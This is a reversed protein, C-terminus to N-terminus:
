LNVGFADAVGVLGTTYGQGIARFKWSGKYRYIEGFIMATVSSEAQHLDYRVIDNDERDAVRIYANRVSAFNGPKRIDPDVYVVFVIKDVEAPVLALDVEIQDTDGKTVYQVSGDPTSLQNFFVLSSTSLAKGAHDCLIASPVLESQPSNSKIVEWGFGVVLDTLLPNAANLATNGGSELRIVSNMAM